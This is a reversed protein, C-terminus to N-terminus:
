KEASLEKEVRGSGQENTTRAYPSIFEQVRKTCKPTYIPTYKTRVILSPFFYQFQHSYRVTPSQLGSEVPSEKKVNM